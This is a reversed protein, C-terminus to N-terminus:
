QASTSSWPTRPPARSVASQMAAISTYCPTPEGTCSARVYVVEARAAGALLLSALAFSLALRHTM